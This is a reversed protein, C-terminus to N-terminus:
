GRWKGTGHRGNARVHDDRRASGLAIKILADAFGYVYPNLDMSGDPQQRLTFGNALALARIEDKTM